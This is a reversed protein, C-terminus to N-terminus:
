ETKRTQYMTIKTQYRKRKLYTKVDEEAQQELKKEFYERSKATENRKKTDNEKSTCLKLFSVNGTYRRGEDSKVTIM